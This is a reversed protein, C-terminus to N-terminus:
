RVWNYDVAYNILQQTNEAGSKTLLKRRLNLVEKKSCKLTINLEDDHVNEILACLLQKEIETFTLQNLRYDNNTNQELQKPFVRKGKQVAEIIHKLDTEADEKLVYASAGANWFFRKYSSINHMTHIIFHTKPMQNKLDPFFDLADLKELSIDLIVINAQALMIEQQLSSNFERILLIEAEPFQKELYSKLYVRIISHDEVLLIRM